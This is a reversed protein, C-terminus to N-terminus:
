RPKQGHRHVPASYALGQAADTRALAMLTQSAVQALSEGTVIAMAARKARINSHAAHQPGHARHVASARQRPYTGATKLLPVVYVNLNGTYPRLEKALKLVKM